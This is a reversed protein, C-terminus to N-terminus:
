SIRLIEFLREKKRSSIPIHSNDSMIIYGGDKKMYSKLHIVNILHSQHVREFGQDTLLDEYEKMTKSVLVPKSNKIHFQTYNGASECRIIDQIEVLHVGDSNALAIRKFTDTRKRMNELLLDLHAYDNQQQVAKKIKTIVTQLEDPDIPKLLFDLASFRFAKIAYQEHATIFIIHTTIKENQAILQELIDFGSGDLLQIDLFAVDPQLDFIKIGDLVNEAEALVKMEPAYLQLLTKLGQRLNADDDIIITSIM